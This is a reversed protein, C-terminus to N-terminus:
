YDIRIVHPRDHAYTLTVIGNRTNYAYHDSDALSILSLILSRGDISVRKPEPSFVRAFGNIAQPGRVEVQFSSDTSKEDHLSSNTWVVGPANRIVYLKFTGPNAVTRISGRPRFFRNASVDYAVADKASDVGIDSTAIGVPKEAERGPIGLYTMPGVTTAFYSPNLSRDYVTRGQFADYHALVSRYRSLTERTMSPLDFSLVTQIGLAVGAQLWWQNVMSVNPDGFAAGMNPRQGLAMKQLVAYDLHEVLGPFPYGNSYSPQEDGYRFTHAYRNALPPTMWGSEIYVDKKLSSANEQIFRYIELTQGGVRDVMGFSDLRNEDVLAGDANGLGDVKIGDM